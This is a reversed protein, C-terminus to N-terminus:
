AVRGNRNHEFAQCIAQILAKREHGFFWTIVIRDLFGRRRTLQIVFGQYLWSNYLYAVENWRIRLEKMPAVVRLENGVEFAVPFWFILNGRFLALLWLIANGVLFVGVLQTRADTYPHLLVYVGVASMM